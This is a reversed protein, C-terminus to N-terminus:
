SAFMAYMVSKRETETGNQSIRIGNLAGRDDKSVSLARAPHHLQV